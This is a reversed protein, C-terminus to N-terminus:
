VEAGPETQAGLTARPGRCVAQLSPKMSSLDWGMHSLAKGKCTLLFVMQPCDVDQMESHSLVQSRGEQLQSGYHTKLTFDHIGETALPLM